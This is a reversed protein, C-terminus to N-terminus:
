YGGGEKEQWKTKEKIEEGDEGERKRRSRGTEGSDRRAKILDEVLGDIQERRIGLM